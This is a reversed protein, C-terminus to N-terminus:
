RLTSWDKRELLWGVSMACVIGICLPLWLTAALVVLAYDEWVGGWTETGSAYAALAISLGISVYAVIVVSPIV